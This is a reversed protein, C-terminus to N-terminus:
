PWCASIQSAYCCYRWNRIIKVEKDIAKCLCSILKYCLARIMQLVLVFSLLKEDTFPAYNRIQLYHNKLHFVAVKVIWEDSIKEFYM